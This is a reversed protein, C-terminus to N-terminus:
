LLERAVAVANQAALRMNDAVVWVWCAKPENRDVKVNGAAIGPGGAIGVVDPPDHEGGRVDIDDSHLAKEIARPEPNREFQIWMLISHGHFVPAQILKLSPAPALSSQGLLTTLHRIIRLEADELSHPAEEGYRALLNFAAQADFVKKPIGKFSLLGVVQHQMEDVGERGRESAPELVTAVTRVIPNYLHLRNLVLTIAIAAPHAIVHVAGKPVSFGAPEVMPARVRARPDDETAGTLDVLATDVNLELAQRASEPTWALFAVDAEGLSYRDLRGVVVPEGEGESEKLLIVPDGSADVMKLRAPLGETQCVDRIERGMLSDGGVLAALAHQQVLQLGESRPLEVPPKEAKPKDTKKAQLRKAHLKKDQPKDL